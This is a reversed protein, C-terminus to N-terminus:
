RACGQRAAVAHPAQAADVIRGPRAVESVVWKTAQGLL